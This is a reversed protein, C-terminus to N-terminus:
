SLEGRLNKEMLQKVKKPAYNQGFLFMLKTLAAEITM